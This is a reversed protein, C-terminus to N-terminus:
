RSVIQSPSSASLAAAARNRPAQYLDYGFGTGGIRIEDGPDPATFVPRLALPQHGIPLARSAPPQAAFPEVAFAIEHTRGRDMAARGIGRRFGKGQQGADGNVFRHGPMRRGTGREMQFPRVVKHRLFALQGTDQEFRRAVGDHHPDAHVERIRGLNRFPRSRGQGRQAALDITIYERGIQYLGEVRFQIAPAVRPQSRKNAAPKIHRM